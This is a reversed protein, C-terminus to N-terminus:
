HGKSKQAQHIENEMAELQQQRLNDLSSYKNPIQTPHLGLLYLKLCLNMENWQSHFARHTFALNSKSGTRCFKDTITM